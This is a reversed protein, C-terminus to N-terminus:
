ETAGLLSLADAETPAITLMRDLKTILFLNMLTERVGVLVLQGNAHKYKEQLPILVALAASSFHLVRSLDLILKKRDQKDILEFLAARLDEITSSNIISSETVTAVTVGNVTQIM